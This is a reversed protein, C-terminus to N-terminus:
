PSGLPLPSRHVPNNRRIQLSIFLPRRPTRGPPGQQCKVSQQCQAVKSLRFQLFMWLFVFGKNVCGWYNAIINLLDHITPRNGMGPFSDSRGAVQLARRVATTTPRSTGRWTKADATKVSYRKEAAFPVRGTETTGGLAPPCCNEQGCRGQNLRFPANQATYNRRM